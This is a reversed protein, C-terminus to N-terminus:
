KSEGKTFPDVGFHDRPSVKPFVNLDSDDTVNYVERTPFKVLLDRKVKNFGDLFRRYVSAYAQQYRVRHWNAEKGEEGGLKMDFGLLFVRRAGKILALNLALSGTNGNFGLRDKEGLGSPYHRLITNLWPTEDHLEPDTCGVMVGGYSAAQVKGIKEWWARDGFVCIKVVEAGLIFASNCGVTNRGRLLGWDLSRLSTGGGIVYADQGAWDHSPSWRPM